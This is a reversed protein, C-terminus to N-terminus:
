HSCKCFFSAIGDDVFDAVVHANTLITGQDDIIVGSGSSFVRNGIESKKITSEIRLNVVSDMVREAADAIFNPSKGCLACSNSQSSNSYFSSWNFWQAHIPTQASYYTFASGVVLVGGLWQTYIFSKSAKKYNNTRTGFQRMWIGFDCRRQTFRMAM